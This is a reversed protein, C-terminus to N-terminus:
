QRPSVNPKEPDGLEMPAGPVRIAIMCRVPKLDITFGLM